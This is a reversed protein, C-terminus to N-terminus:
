FFVYWAFFPVVQLSALLLFGARWLWSRYRWLLYATLALVLGLEIVGVVQAGSASDWYSIPSFFKWDTLPWFHMRADENHLPFDFAIHLLAAGSLAIAWGSRLWVALGLAIGWLVFSNDVAFVRQWAESFYLQGFVIDPSTGLVLLHWGALLYLSLDPLTAGLLAAWTVRAELPKGFAAAGMILHAPTNMARLRPSLALM